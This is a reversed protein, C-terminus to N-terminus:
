RVCEVRTMPFDVGRTQGGRSGEIRAHLSGPGTQRYLIRQPFDHAPNEFTVASDTLAIARFQAPPQGSPMAHYVLTGAEDQIRLHEYEVTSDGRTTRSMGLIASGRPRMWQEEVVRTGSRREWCGALWALRDLPRPSPPSGQSRVSAPAALFLALAVPALRLHRRHM